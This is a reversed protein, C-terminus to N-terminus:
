GAKTPTPPREDELDLLKKAEAVEDVPTAEGGGMGEDIAVSLQRADQELAALAARKEDLTLDPDTAVEMPAAKVAEPMGVDGPAPAFDNDKTPTM